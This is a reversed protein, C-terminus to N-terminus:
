TPSSVGRICAEAGGHLELINNPNQNKPYKLNTKPIVSIDAYSFVGEPPIELTDNLQTDILPSRNPPPESSDVALSKIKTSRTERVTISKM